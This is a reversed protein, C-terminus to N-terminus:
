IGNGHGDLTFIDQQSQCQGQRHQNKKCAVQEAVARIKNWGTKDLIIIYGINGISFLVQIIIMQVQLIGIGEVVM